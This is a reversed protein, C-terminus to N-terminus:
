KKRCSAAPAFPLVVAELANAAIEFGKASPHYDEPLLFTDEVRM